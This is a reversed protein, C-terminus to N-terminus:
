NMLIQLYTRILGRLHHMMIIILQLLPNILMLLLIKWHPTVVRGDTLEITFLVPGTKCYVTGKLWPEGSSFNKALVHDGVQLYSDKAHLDHTEKQCYQSQRVKADM